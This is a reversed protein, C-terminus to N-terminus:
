YDVLVLIFFLLHRSTITVAGTVLMASVELLLFLFFEWKNKQSVLLSAM